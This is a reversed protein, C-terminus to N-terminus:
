ARAASTSCSCAASPWPTTASRRPPLRFQAQRALAPQGPRTGQLAPPAAVVQRYARSMVILRVMHKVDWGSDVFEVALWDLLEPHTPPEGQGGFDDLSKSLGPRLVSVVPPQRVRPGHPRRRRDERRDALQRPRAADSPREAPRAQRPVGPVAPQVIPGTDDLWNGRPLVRM